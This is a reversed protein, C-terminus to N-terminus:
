RHCRGPMVILCYAQHGLKAVLFLSGISFLLGPILVLSWGVARDQQPDHELANIREIIGDIKSFSPVTPWLPGSVAVSLLATRLSQRSEATAGAAIEDAWRELALRLRRTGYRIPPWFWFADDLLAAFVLYKQHSHRLHALEHACVLDFEAQSISQVLLRSVLVTGSDRGSRVSLANRRDGPTVVIDYASQRGINEGLEAVLLAERVSRRARAIARLALALASVGLVIVVTWAVFGAPHLSGFMRECARAANSLGVLRLIPPSVVLLFSGITSFAGAGLALLCLVAWTSPRLYKGIRSMAGPLALLGLGIVMFAIIM